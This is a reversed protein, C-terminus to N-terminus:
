EVTIKAYNIAQLYRRQLSNLGGVGGWGVGGKRRREMGDGWKQVVYVCTRSECSDKVFQTAKKHASTRWGQEM